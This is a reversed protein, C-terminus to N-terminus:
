KIYDILQKNMSDFDIVSNKNAPDIYSLEKELYPRTTSFLCKALEPNNDIDENLTRESFTYEPYGIVYRKPNRGEILDNQKAYEYLGRVPDFGKVKNYVMKFSKGNTNSRSKLIEVNVGFGDFGNDEENYKESGIAVFKFINNSLFLPANGGPISEDMKLYLLQPATKQLPNIEIKANIHNIAIITINYKGILPTLKKYFQSIAKAVRNAYTGGEMEQKADKTAINPIADIICVTPPYGIIRQGFENLIGYDIMIEKKNEEKMQCIAYVSDMIDEIFLDDKKLIYKRKYEDISYNTVNLIRTDTTARELDWHLVFSNDYPRVIHAAIQIAATSKAVGSKGILTIFSGASIGVANQTHSVLGDEGFINMKYGNMYDLVPFPTHLMFDGTSRTLLHKVKKDNLLKDLLMDAM